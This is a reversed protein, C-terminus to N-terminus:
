GVIDIIWIQLIGNMLFQICIEDPHKSHIRSDDIFLHAETTLNDKSSKDTEQIIWLIM